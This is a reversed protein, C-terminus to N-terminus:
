PRRDLRRPLDATFVSGVDVTSEVAIRGGMLETYRRVLYLGLGVGARSSRAGDLQQFMEFVSPLAEPPIGVGTDAVSIRIRDGELGTEVEVTVSGRRTFKLANDVLNRLVLKLKGRDLCLDPDAVAAPWRVEVDPHGAISFENHLETLLADIGFESVDVTVRGAELRSVDLTMNILELLGRGNLLMRDLVEIQEVTTPGMSGERMLEAYGLMAGLPTRLEHSMMGLFESKLQSARRLAEVLRANEVAVAAQAAIGEAIRRERHSFPGCRERYGVVMAGVVRDARLMPVLLMSSIQWRRYLAEHRGRPETLEVTECDLLRGVVRLSGVGFELSEVERAVEMPWGEVATLRFAEKAPYWLAVAAWDCDLVERASRAIQPPVEAEQLSERIARTVRLLSASVRGEEEERERALASEIAVAAQAGFIMARDGLAATFRRPNSYDAFVLLGIARPEGRLPLVMASQLGAARAVENMYRSQPFDNLLVVASARDVEDVLDQGFPLRAGAFLEASFGAAACGILDEGRRLWLYVGDAELVRRAEECITAGLQDLSQATLLAQAVQLLSAHFAAAQKRETIDRGITQLLGAGDEQPLVNSRLEVVRRSGDRLQVEREYTEPIPLGALARETLMMAAEYDAPPLLERLTVGREVDELAYGGFERAMRNAAVIVGDMDNVIIIDNADEFLANFRADVTGFIDRASPSESECPSPRQSSM